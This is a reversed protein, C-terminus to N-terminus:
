LGAAVLVPDREEGEPTVAPLFDTAIEEDVVRRARPVEVSDPCQVVLVGLVDVALALQIVQALIGVFQLALV